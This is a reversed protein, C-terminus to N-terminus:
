AHLDCLPTEPYGDPRRGRAQQRRGSASSSHATGDLGPSREAIESLSRWVKGEFVYGKDLVQVQYTKNNWERILTTGPDLEQSPQSTGPEKGSRLDQVLPAIQERTVRDLGGHAKSQLHWAVGLELLERGVRPPPPNGLAKTWLGRLDSLSFNSFNTTPATM